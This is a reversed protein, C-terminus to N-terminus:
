GQQKVYSSLQYWIILSLAACAAATLMLPVFGLSIIVAGIIPGLIGAVYLPIYALNLTTSRREEPVQTAILSYFMTGSTSTFVSLLGYIIAMAAVNPAFPFAAICLATGGASVGLVRLYGLRDGIIGTLPTLLAGVLASTGVVLGIASKLTTPDHYVQQVLLPIFPRAVQWALIVLSACAFILLTVRVTLVSKLAIWALMGASGVVKVGSSVERYGLMLLGAAFLSLLGGSAFLWRLDLIHADTLLGGIQPGLAFGLPSAMGILSLALGVRQTPTVARQAAMMIGTNGLQFGSLALSIALQWPTQCLAILIFVLAEVLASRVIIAKRSYKDAWVGWFPILPLGVIFVLPTVLGTLTAAEDKPVGMQEQLYLPLFALLQGIIYSEFFSVVFFVAVLSVWSQEAMPSPRVSTDDAREDQLAENKTQKCVAM